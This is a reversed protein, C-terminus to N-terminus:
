LEYNFTLVVSFVLFTDVTRFSAFGFYRHQSQCMSPMANTQIQNIIAASAFPRCNLQHFMWKWNFECKKRNSFIALCYLNLVHLVLHVPEFCTGEFFVWPVNSLKVISEIIFTHCNIILIFLPLQVNTAENFHIMIWDCCESSDARSDETRNKASLWFHKEIWIEFSQCKTHFLGYQAYRKFFFIFHKWKWVNGSM